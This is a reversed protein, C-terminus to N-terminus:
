SAVQDIIKAVMEEVQAKSDASELLPTLLNALQIQITQSNEM